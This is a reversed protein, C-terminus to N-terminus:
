VARDEKGAYSLQYLLQNTILFLLKANKQTRRCFGSKM